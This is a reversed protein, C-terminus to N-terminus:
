KGYQDELETNYCVSNLDDDDGCKSYGEPCLETNPDVRKATM